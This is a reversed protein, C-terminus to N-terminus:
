IEDVTQNQSPFPIFYNAKIQMKVKPVKDDELKGIVQTTIQGVVCVGDGVNAQDAIPYIDGAPVWVSHTKATDAM